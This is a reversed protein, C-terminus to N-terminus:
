AFCIPECLNGSQIVCACTFTCENLMIYARYNPATGKVSFPVIDIVFFVTLQHVLWGTVEKEVQANLNITYVKVVSIEYLFFFCM